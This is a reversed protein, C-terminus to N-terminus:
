GPSFCVPTTSSGPSTIPLRLDQFRAEDVGALRSTECLGEKLTKPNSSAPLRKRLESANELLKLHNHLAKLTVASM